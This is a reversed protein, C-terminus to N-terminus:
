GKHMTVNKEVQIVKQGTKARSVKTVVYIQQNKQIM